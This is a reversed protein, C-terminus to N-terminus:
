AGAAAGAAAKRAAKCAAKHQPWNALQCDKCCFRPGKCAACRKFHDVHLERAGCHACPQREPAEQEAQAKADLNASLLLASQLANDMGREELVGSGRLRSVAAELADRHERSVPAQGGRLLLEDVDNLLVAEFGFSKGKELRPMSMLDLGTAACNVIQQTQAATLPSVASPGSGLITVRHLALRAVLLYAEYGIFPAFLAAQRAGYAGGAAILQRRFEVEHPACKGYLLTGACRRREVVPMVSLLELFARHLLAHM